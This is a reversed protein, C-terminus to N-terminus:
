LDLEGLDICNISIKTLLSKFRNNIFSGLINVPEQNALEVNDLKEVVKFLAM